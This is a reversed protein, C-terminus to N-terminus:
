YAVSWAVLAFVAHRSLKFLRLDNFNWRKRVILWMNTGILVFGGSFFESFFFCPYKKQIRRASQRFLSALVLVGIGIFVARM